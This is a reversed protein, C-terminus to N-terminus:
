QPRIQRTRLHGGRKMEAELLRRVAWAMDVLDDGTSDQGRGHCITSAKFLAGWATALAQELRAQETGNVSPM